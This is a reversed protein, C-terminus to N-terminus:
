GLEAEHECCMKGYVGDVNWLKPLTPLDPAGWIGELLAVAEASVKGQVSYLSAEHFLDNALSLKM